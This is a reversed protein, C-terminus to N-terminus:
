DRLDGVVADTERRVSVEDRKLRKVLHGVIFGGACKVMLAKSKATRAAWLGLNRLIERIFLIQIKYGAEMDRAVAADSSHKEPEFEAWAPYM